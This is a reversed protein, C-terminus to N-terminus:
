WRRNITEIKSSGTASGSPPTLNQTKEIKPVCGFRTNGQDWIQLLTLM